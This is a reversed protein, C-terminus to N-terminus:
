KPNNPYLNTPTYGGKTPAPTSPPVPAAEKLFPAITTVFRMFEPHNGMGTTELAERMSPTGYQDLISSVTAQSAAYKPGGFVPDAASTAKWNEMVSDWNAADKVQQDAYAKAQLGLLENILAKPDGANKNLVELLTGSTAEDLIM